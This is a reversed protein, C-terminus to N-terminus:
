RPPASPPASPGAAPQNAAAPGGARVEDIEKQNEELADKTHQIVEGLTKKRQEDNTEAVKDQMKKLVKQLHDRDSILEQLRIQKQPASDFKAPINKQAAADPNVAARAALAGASPSIPKDADPSPPIEDNTVVRRARAASKKRAVDGLSPQDQSQAWLTIGPLLFVLLAAACSLLHKRKM